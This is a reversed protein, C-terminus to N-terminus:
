KWKRESKKGLREIPKEFLKNATCKIDGEGRDSFHGCYARYKTVDGGIKKGRGAMTIGDIKGDSV